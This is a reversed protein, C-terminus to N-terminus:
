RKARVPVSTKWANRPAAPTISLTYVKFPAKADTTTPQPFIFANGADAGTMTVAQIGSGADYSASTIRVPKEVQDGDADLATESVSCQVTGNLAYMAYTLLKVDKPPKAQGGMYGLYGDVLTSFRTLKALTPTFSSTYGKDGQVYLVNFLPLRVKADWNKIPQSFFRDQFLAAEWAKFETEGFLRDVVYPQEESDRGYFAYRLRGNGYSLEEFDGAELEVDAEPRIEAAAPELQKGTKKDRFLANRYKQVQIQTTGAQGQTFQTATDPVAPNQTGTPSKCGALSALVLGLVVWKQL